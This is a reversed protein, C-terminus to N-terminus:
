PQCLGKADKPYQLQKNLLSFFNSKYLYFTFKRRPLVVVNEKVMGLNQGTKIM